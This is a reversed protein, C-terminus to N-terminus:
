FLQKLLFSLYSVKMIESIQFNFENMFNKDNYINQAIKVIKNIQKSM